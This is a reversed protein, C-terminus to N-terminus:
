KKNEGKDIIKEIYNSIVQFCYLSKAISELSIAIIIISKFFIFLLITILVIQIFEIM